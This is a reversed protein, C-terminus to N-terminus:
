STRNWLRTNYPVLGCSQFFALAQENFAWTDLALLSIGESKGRAGVADLLARGVGQRRATPRVSIEHVYIMDHAHHRATEPRRIIEAVVYGVPAEDAYALLAFYNTRRLLAEADKDTFTDAAPQKFRWPHADAHIKQVDANLMAILAADESRAARIEIRM